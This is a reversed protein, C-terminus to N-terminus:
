VTNLYQIINRSDRHGEKSWSGVSAEVDAEEEEEEMVDRRGDKRGTASLVPLLSLFLPPLTVATPRGIDAAAVCAGNNM